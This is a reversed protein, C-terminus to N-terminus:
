SIESTIATSAITLVEIWQSREKMSMARLYMIRSQDKGDLTKPEIKFGFYNKYM